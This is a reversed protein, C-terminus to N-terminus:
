IYTNIVVQTYYITDPGKLYYNFRNKQLLVIQVYTKFKLWLLKQMGIKEDGVKYILLQLKKVVIQDLDELM